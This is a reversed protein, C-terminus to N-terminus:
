LDIETFAQNKRSDPTIIKEDVHEAATFSTEVNTSTLTQLPFTQHLTQEDFHFNQHRHRHAYFFHCCVILFTIISMTLISLEMMNYHSKVYKVHCNEIEIGEQLCLM